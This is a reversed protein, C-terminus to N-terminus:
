NGYKRIQEFLHRRFSSPVEFTRTDTLLRLVNRTGDMVATCHRCAALHEQLECRLQPTIEDDLYSSLASIVEECSLEM